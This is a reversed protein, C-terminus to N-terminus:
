MFHAARPARHGKCRAGRRRRGVWVVAGVRDTRVAAERQGAHPYISLAAPGGLLLLQQVDLTCGHPIHVQRLARFGVLEESTPHAFGPLRHTRPQVEWAGVPPERENQRRRAPARSQSLAREREGVREREREREEGGGGVERGGERESEREGSPLVAVRRHRHTCTNHTNHWM